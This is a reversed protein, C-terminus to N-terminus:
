TGDGEREPLVRDANRGDKDLPAFGHGEVDLEHLIIDDREKGM